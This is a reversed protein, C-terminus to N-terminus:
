EALTKMLSSAFSPMLANLSFRAGTHRPRHSSRKGVIVTQEPSLLRKRLARTSVLVGPHETLLRRVYTEPTGNYPFEGRAKLKQLAADEEV